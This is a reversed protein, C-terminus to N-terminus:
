TLTVSKWTAGGNPTAYLKNDTSDYILGVAQAYPATANGTPAGACSPIWLFGATANTALAATGVIVDKTSKVFFGNADHISWNTTSGSQAQLHLGYSTTIGSAGMNNIYAGYCNTIVGSSSVSPSIINIGYATTLQSSTGTVTPMSVRVGYSNTAVGANSLSLTDISIGYVNTMSVTSSNNTVATIEIGFANTPFSADDTASGLNLFIGIASNASSDGSLEPMLISQGTYNGLSDTGSLIYPGITSTTANGFDDTGSGTVDGLVIITNQFSLGSGDSAVVPFQNAIGTIDAVNATSNTSNGVLSLGASQRFKANSVANASITTAFSGAGGGTVDGTLTIIQDGTNTGSLNSGTVTGSATVSSPTIAGLTITIAPTTTSNIVSGSVGNATTVSVNTVTGNGVSTALLRTWCGIASGTPVINTVGSDDPGTGTSNWYFSGQGGDNPTIYGQMYVTMNGVGIFARLNAVNIAGQVYTNYQDASVQNLGQSQVYLSPVSM